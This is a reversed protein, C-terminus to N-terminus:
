VEIQEFTTKVIEVFWKKGGGDRGGNAQKEKLWEATQQALDVPFHMAEQVENEFNCYHKYISSVYKKGEESHWYGIIAYDKM